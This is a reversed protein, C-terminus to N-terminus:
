EDWGCTCLADCNCRERELASYTSMDAWVNALHKDPDDAAPLAPSPMEGHDM